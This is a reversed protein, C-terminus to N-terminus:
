RGELSAALVRLGEEVEDRPLGGRELEADSRERLREYFARADHGAQAADGRSVRVFHANEAAAFAGAREHLRAASALDESSLTTDGLRHRLADLIESAPLLDDPTADTSSAAAAAVLSLARRHALRARDASGQEARTDGEHM